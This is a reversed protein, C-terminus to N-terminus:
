KQTEMRARAAEIFRRVTRENLGTRAAIEDITLRQLRLRIVAVEGPACGTTLQVLRDDAQVTQSPSPEPSVVERPVDRDGRRIYLREERGLDCKETKTLRRHQEQVKNWVMGKLFARLHQVNEFDPSKSQLDSFFSQWVAQAFDMSDFRTRLKKPLRARVMMQVEWEFQSLFVRIAAADGSKARRMLDIFNDDNSM